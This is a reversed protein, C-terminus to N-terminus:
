RKILPALLQVTNPALVALSIVGAVAVLNLIIETSSISKDLDSFRRAM